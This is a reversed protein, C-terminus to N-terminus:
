AARRRRSSAAWLGLGVLLASAPEPVNLPDGPGLVTTNTLGFQGTGTDNNWMDTCSAQSAYPASTGPACVFWSGDPHAHFGLRDGYEIVFEAPSPLGDPISGSVTPFNGPTITFAPALNSGSYDFSVFNEIAIASGATYDQLVLTGLVGYTAVNAAEACDTCNANFYYTSLVPTTLVTAQAGAGALVTAAAALLRRTFFSM